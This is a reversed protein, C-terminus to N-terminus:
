DLGPMDRGADNVFPANFIDVRALQAVKRLAVEEGADPDPGESQTAGSPGIISRNPRTGTRALREARCAKSSRKLVCPVKPRRKGPEDLLALRWDDKSFLNRTLSDLRPDVKYVSVHFGHVVGEPGDRKRSRADTRRVDSVSKVPHGVGVVATM